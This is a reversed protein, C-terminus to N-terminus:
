RCDIKFGRLRQYALINLHRRAAETAAEDVIVRFLGPVMLRGANLGRLMTVSTQASSRLTGLAIQDRLFDAVLEKQTCYVVDRRYHDIREEPTTEHEVHGVRLGMALYTPGMEEADRGVLYDNVTIIHVPKGGWGWISAALSATITKGEGTAMETVFGECMALAGMIQV